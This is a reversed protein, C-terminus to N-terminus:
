KSVQDRKRDKDIGHAPQSENKYKISSKIFFIWVWLCAKDQVERADHKSSEKVMDSFMFLKLMESYKWTWWCENDVEGVVEPWSKINKKWKGVQSLCSLFLVWIMRLSPDRPQGKWLKFLWSIDILHQETNCSTTSKSYRRCTDNYIWHIKLNWIESKKGNHLIDPSM